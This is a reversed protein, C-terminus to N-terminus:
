VLLRSGTKSVNLAAISNDLFDRSMKEHDAPFRRYTSEIVMILSLYLDYLARRAPTGPAQTIALEYGDLLAPSPKMFNGEMLPDAWMAREFDILGTIRKSTSDVFINPDWLDWHILAPSEVEALAGLHPTASEFAGQPLDIDQDQQDRKLDEMVGNFADTWTSYVPENFTGFAQGKIIHLNKLHAGIQRDVFAREEPTFDVKAQELPVGPVCAAIFYDSAVEERTRDFAIVEPVPLDTCAKVTLTVGVEAEMLNQEYRLVRVDDSPAIKLVFDAEPLTLQFAANFWGDKLERVLLPKAGLHKECIRELQEQSVPPKTISDM